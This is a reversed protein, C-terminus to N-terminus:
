IKTGVIVKAEGFMGSQAFLNGTGHTACFFDATRTGPEKGPLRFGPALELVFKRFKGPGFGSKKEGGAVGRIETQERRENGLVVDQKGVLAIMGAQNIAHAQGARAFDDIRMAVKIGQFVRKALGSALGAALDDDGFCNEAHISVDGGQDFERIEGFFIVSSQDKVLRVGGANVSGRAAAQSSGCADCVFNEGYNVGAAFRQGGGAREDAAGRNQFLMQYIVRASKNEGCRKRWVERRLDFSGQM